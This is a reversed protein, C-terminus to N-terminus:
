SLPGATIEPRAPRAIATRWEGFTPVGDLVGRWELRTAVLEYQQIIESLGAWDFPLPEGRAEEGERVREFTLEDCDIWDRVSRLAYRGLDDAWGAQDSTTFEVFASWFAAYTEIAHATREMDVWAPQPIEGSSERRVAGVTKHDVGLLRGLHRDSADPEAEILKRILDRRQGRSLQRRGFNLAIAQEIKQEETLGPLVTRPYEIGLETAIEARHHGDLIAGTEDVVVPHLVGFTTISEVLAAREELTLPPLFQYTSMPHCVTPSRRSALRLVRRLPPLSVPHYAKSPRSHNVCRFEQESGPASYHGGPSM